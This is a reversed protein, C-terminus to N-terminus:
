KGSEGRFSADSNIKICNARPPRWKKAIPISQQQHNQNSQSQNHNAQIFSMAHSAIIVTGMPNSNLNNFVCDNRAKWIAWAVNAFVALLSENDKGNEKWLDM